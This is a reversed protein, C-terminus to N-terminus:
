TLGIKVRYAVMNAENLLDKHALGIFTFISLEKDVEYLGLQKNGQTSCVKCKWAYTKQLGDTIQHM